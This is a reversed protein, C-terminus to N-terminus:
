SEYIEIIKHMDVGIAKGVSKLGSSLLEAEQLYSEQIIINDMIAFGNAKIQNLLNLENETWKIADSLAKNLDIDLFPNVENVFQNVTEIKTLEKSISNRLLYEGGVYILDIDTSLSTIDYGMVSKSQSSPYKVSEKVVELLYKVHENKLNKM